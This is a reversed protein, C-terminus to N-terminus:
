EPKRPIPIDRPRPTLGWNAALNKGEGTLAYAYPSRGWSSGDHPAATGCVLKLISLRALAGYITNPTLETRQALVDPTAQEVELLNQVVATIAPTRIPRSRYPRFPHSM